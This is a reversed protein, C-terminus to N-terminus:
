LWRERFMVLILTGPLGLLELALALGLSSPQQFAFELLVLEFVAQSVVFQVAVLRSSSGRRGAAVAAAILPPLLGISALLWANM